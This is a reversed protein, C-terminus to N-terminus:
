SKEYRHFLPIKLLCISVKFLNSSFLDIDRSCDLSIVMNDLIMIKFFDQVSILGIFQSFNSYHKFYAFFYERLLSIFATLFFVFAKQFIVLLQNRLSEERHKMVIIEMVSDDLDLFDIQIMILEQNIDVTGVKRIFVSGIHVNFKGTAKRM